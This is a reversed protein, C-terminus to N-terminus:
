SRAFNFEMLPKYEAEKGLKSEFLVMHKIKLPVTIKLEENVSQKLKLKNTFRALTIHPVVKRRKQGSLHFQALENSVSKVLERFESYPNKFVAWLMRPNKGPALILRSLQLKFPKIRLCLYNLKRVIKNIKEEEVNGLFYVTLHLKRDEIWRFAGFIKRKRYKSLAQRM